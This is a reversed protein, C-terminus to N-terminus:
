GPVAKKAPFAFVGYLVFLFAMPIGAQLIGFLRTELTLGPEVILGFSRDPQFTCAASYSGASDLKLSVSSGAPIFLPDLQHNVSDANHVVLVDGVVFTMSEPLSPESQGQQVRLGTGPPITLRITQPAREEGHRLFRYTVESILAGLVLAALLSVSVRRILVRRSM